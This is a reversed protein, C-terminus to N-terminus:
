RRVTGTGALEAYRARRSGPLSLIEAESWHTLEAIACVDEYVYSAQERLERLTYTLPDFFTTIPAGCEPCTGQLDSAVSPSMAEMATEVRRREGRTLDPPRVCRRLLEKEPHPASSAALQDGVLPLRFEAGVDDLRFWADDIAAVKRGRRPRNQDLYDTISFNIDVRAACTPAACVVEAVLRDGFVRRRLCLLLVDVDTMTLASWEVPLEDVRRVVRDLLMVAVGLDLDGAELLVVDDAGTPLGVHVDVGAVPLRFL